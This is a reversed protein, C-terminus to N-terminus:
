GIEGSATASNGLHPLKEVSGAELWEQEFLRLAYGRAVKRVVPDALWRSHEVHYFDEVLGTPDKCVVLACNAWLPVVVQVDHPLTLKAQPQTM